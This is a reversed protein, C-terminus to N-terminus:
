RSFPLPPLIGKLYLRSGKSLLSIRLCPLFRHSFSSISKTPQYNPTPPERPNVLFTSDLNSRFNQSTLNNIVPLMTLSRSVGLAFSTALSMRSPFSRKRRLGPSAKSCARTRVVLCVRLTDTPSTIGRRITFIHSIPCDAVLCRGILNEM